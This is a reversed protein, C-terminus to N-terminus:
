PIEGYYRWSGDGTRAKGAFTRGHSADASTVGHSDQASATSTVLAVAGAVVAGLILSGATRVTQTTM